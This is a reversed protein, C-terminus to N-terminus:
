KGFVAVIHDYSGAYFWIENETQLEAQLAKGDEDYWGRFEYGYGPKVAVSCRENKSLQVDLTGVGEVRVGGIGLKDCGALALRKLPNGFSSFLALEKKGSLDLESIGTEQIVVSELDPCASLDLSSLPLDSLDLQRLAPCRSLDLSKLSADRALSLSRLSECHSLDLETIELMNCDLMELKRCPSLDLHTFDNENLLLAVLEPCPTLDLETLRNGRVDLDTLAPFGSLDLETLADQMLCLRDLKESGTVSFETLPNQYVHLTLLAPCNEMRFSRLGCDIACLDTLAPCDRVSLETMPDDSCDVSTLAPCGDVCLAAVGNFLTLERLAACGSLDLCGALLTDEPFSYVISALHLEGDALPEWVVEYQSPVSGWTAPDNPDYSPDLKEGNRVGAGDTLDLFDALKNYDFASYGAPVVREPVETDSAGSAETRVCGEGGESSLAAEASAATEPAASPSEEPKGGRLLVLGGIVLAVATLAVASLLVLRRGHPRNRNTM